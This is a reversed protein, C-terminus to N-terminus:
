WGETLHLENLLSKPITIPGVQDEYAKVTNVLVKAFVKAHQPSM